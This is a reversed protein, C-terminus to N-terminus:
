AVSNQNKKMMECWEAYGTWINLPTHPTARLFCTRGYSENFTIEINRDVVHADAQEPPPPPVPTHPVLNGPHAGFWDEDVEPDLLPHKSGWWGRLDGSKARLRALVMAM